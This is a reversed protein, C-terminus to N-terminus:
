KCQLDNNCNLQKFNDAKNRWMNPDTLDIINVDFDDFVMAKDFTNITKVADGFRHGMKNYSIVQINIQTEM